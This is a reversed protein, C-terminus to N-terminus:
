EWPIILLRNTLSAMLVHFSCLSCMHARLCDNLYNNCKEGGLGCPLAILKFPWFFLWFFFLPLSPLLLCHRVPQCCLLCGLFSGSSSSHCMSSHWLLIFGNFSRCFNFDGECFFAAFFRLSSFSVSVLHLLALSSCLPLLFKVGAVPPPTARHAAAWMKVAVVRLLLVWGGVVDLLLWCCGGCGAPLMMEEDHGLLLEQLLHHLFPADM